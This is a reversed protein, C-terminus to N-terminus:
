QTGVTRMILQLLDDHSESQMADRTFESAAERHGAQRLARTVLGILHYANGDEGSLQVTVEPHTPGQQIDSEM